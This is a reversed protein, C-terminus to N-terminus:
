LELHKQKEQNLKLPLTIKHEKCKKQFDESIIVKEIDPRADAKKQLCQRIVRAFTPNVGGPVAAPKAELV